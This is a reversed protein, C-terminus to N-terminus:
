CMRDNKLIIEFAFTMGREIITAIRMDIGKGLVGTFPDGNKELRKFINQITFQEPPPRIESGEM